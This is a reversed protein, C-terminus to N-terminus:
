GREKRPRLDTGGCYTSAGPYFRDRGRIKAEVLARQARGMLSAADEAPSACLAIGISATATVALCEIVYPERCRELVATAQRAAHALDPVELFAAFDDSELRALVADPPLARAMRAAAERVIRDGFEHGLAANVGDLRDLDIALLALVPRSRGINRVARALCSQFGGRTPLWTLPDLSHVM